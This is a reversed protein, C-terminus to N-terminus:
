WTYRLTVTTLGSNHDPLRYDWVVKDVRGEYIRTMVDKTKVPHALVSVWQKLSGQHHVWIRGSCWDDTPWCNAEAYLTVTGGHAVLYTGSNVSPALVDANVVFGQSNGNITIAFLTILLLIYKKM